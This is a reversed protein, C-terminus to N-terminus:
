FWINSCFNPTKEWKKRSPVISGAQVKKILVEISNSHKIKKKFIKNTRFKAPTVFNSSNFFIRKKITDKTNRNERVVPM